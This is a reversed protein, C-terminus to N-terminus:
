CIRRSVKCPLYVGYLNQNNIKNGIMMMMKVLVSVNTDRIFTILETEFSLFVTIM